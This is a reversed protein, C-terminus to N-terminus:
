YMVGGTKLFIAVSVLNHLWCHVKTPYRNNVRGLRHSGEPRCGQLSCATVSGERRGRTPRLCQSALLLQSLQLLTLFHPAAVGVVGQSSSTIQQAGRSGFVVVRESEGGHGKLGPPPIARQSGATAQAGRNKAASSDFTETQRRKEKHDQQVSGDTKQWSWARAEKESTARVTLWSHSSKGEKYTLVWVCQISTHLMAVGREGPGM